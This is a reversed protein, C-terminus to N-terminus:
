HQHEISTEAQPAIDPMPWKGRNTNNSRWGNDAGSLPRANAVSTQGGLSDPEIHDTQLWHFPADCVPNASKVYAPPMRLIAPDATKRPTRINSIVDHPVASKNPPRRIESHTPPNTPTTAVDFGHAPPNFM